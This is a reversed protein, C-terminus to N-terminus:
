DLTAFPCCFRGAHILNSTEIGKGRQASQWLDPTGEDADANGGGHGIRTRVTQEEAIEDPQGDDDQDRQRRGPPSAVQEQQAAQMRKNSRGVPQPGAVQADPRSHRVPSPLEAAQGPGEVIHGVRQLFPLGLGHSRLRRQAGTLLPETQQDLLERGDDPGHIRFQAERGGLSGPQGVQAQPGILHDAFRDVLVELGVVRLERGDGRM